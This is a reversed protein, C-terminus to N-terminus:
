PGGAEMKLAFREVGEKAIIPASFSINRFFGSKEIAVTLASTKGTFGEIEVKGKDDVSLNILWADNPLAASLDRMVKVATNSGDLFDLLVKRDSQLLELKRRAEIMGSAKGRISSRRADLSKMAKWDKYYAITGTLLFIIVVAASLGGIIYPYLDPGKRLLEAPLFGMDMCTRKVTSSALADSVSIRFKRSNFKETVSPDVNGTFYVLGPYLVLLREIERALDIGRPFDKLYVPRSNKLGAIEYSTDTINVFLGEIHKGGTVDLLGCLAGITSCRVALIGLNTEKALRSLGNVLEKRVTFVLVKVRGKEGPMTIFDFLYEDVPLPFYKELEFLLAKRLDNRGLAPMDILQHSFNQLPLGIVVGDPSYEKKWKKLTEAIAGAREEKGAPVVAEESRVPRIIRFRSDIVSASLISNGFNVGLIRSM